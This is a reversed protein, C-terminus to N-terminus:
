EKMTLTYFYLLNQANTKYRAVKGFKTILALLKRTANKPSQIYLIMERGDTVTKKKNELKLEKIEKEERIATDPVEMVINFLLSSLPCQQRTGSKLPIAKLKEGNFLVTAAPKDCIAKIINTGEIGM